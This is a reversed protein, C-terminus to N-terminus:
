EEVPAAVVENTEEVVEEEDEKIESDDTKPIRADIAVDVIIERGNLEKGNYEAVAQKQTEEDAFKVFAIGKNFPARTGTQKKLIHAPVRRTPVHIWKPKLDKFLGNLTKVDVKYDLNTVFITDQSAKGEPVREKGEGNSVKKAPKSEEKLKKHEEKEKLAAERKAKFAELKEKKEEETAPPLAKKIFINRRQFKTGNFDEVAKDADEKTEFQAFAFGLHRKYSKSNARTIEKFPIEVETRFQNTNSNPM